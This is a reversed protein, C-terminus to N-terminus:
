KTKLSKTQQEVFTVERAIQRRLERDRINTQISRLLFLTTKPNQDEPIRILHPYSFAQHIIPLYRRVTQPKGIDGLDVSKIIAISVRDGLGEVHKDIQSDSIGPLKLKAKILPVSYDEDARQQGRTESLLTIVIVAICMLKITKSHLIM